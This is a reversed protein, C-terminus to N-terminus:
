KELFEIIDKVPKEGILRRLENNDNDFLISIPLTDGVNYKIVETEDIDFDLDVYTLNPYDKQIKKWNKRMIICGPCWIANIRIVKM